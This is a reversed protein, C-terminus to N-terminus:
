QVRPTAAAGDDTVRIHVTVVTPRTAPGGASIGVLTKSLCGKVGPAFDAGANFYARQSADTGRPFTLSVDFAVQPSNVASLCQHTAALAGEAVQNPDFEPSPSAADVAAARDRAAMMPAAAAITPLPNAPPVAAAPRTAAAAPQTAAATPRTAAAATPEAAPWALLFLGSALAAGVAMWALPAAARRLGPPGVVRSTDTEDVAAPIAPGCTGRALARHAPTQEHPPVIAPLPNLRRPTVHGEARAEVYTELHIRLHDLSEYREEPFPGMAKVLVSRLDAPVKPFYNVGSAMEGRRIRAIRHPNTEAGFPHRGTLKEFLLVGVSFVLSRQDVEEGRAQEPSAYLLDGRLEHQRLMALFSLTNSTLDDGVHGADFADLVALVQRVIAVPETSDGDDAMGRALSWFREALTTPARAPAPTDHGTNSM